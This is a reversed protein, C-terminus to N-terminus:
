DDDTTEEEGNEAVPDTKSDMPIIEPLLAAEERVDLKGTVADAILRTRYEKLLAIESLVPAISREVNAVAEAVHTAIRRQDDLPPLPLQLQCFNAYRLAQGDRVLDSTTRLASVYAKTKLLLAFYECHVKPEPILMVYASSICGSVRSWELGGQFSRMSIVFDNPEVHKLIDSGVLVQMVRRGELAMFEDRKLIGRSQSATLMEDGPRSREKRHAFLSKSSVVEWHAPIQGMWASGSDVTKVHSDLGSLVLSDIICSRQENLLAILKQKAAIARAICLEAHDLFRAISVQNPLSPVLFPMDLLVGASMTARVGGGLNNFVRRNYLDMFQWYAYRPWVSGRPRLRLYAPSMAGRRMVHGVRSTQVNELDILKFVLDDIEFLQYTGYDKPVLGEPSDPNNVVVGRLTLSLITQETRGLNMKKESYFHSKVKQVEWGEAVFEYWPPLEAESNCMQDRM